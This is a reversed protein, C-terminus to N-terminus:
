PRKSVFLNSVLQLRKSVDDFDFRNLEITLGTAPPSAARVMDFFVLRIIARFWSYSHKQWLAHAITLYAGEYSVSSGVVHLFYSSHQRM